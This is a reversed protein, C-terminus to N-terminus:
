ADHIGRQYPGVAFNLDTEHERALHGAFREIPDELAVNPLLSRTTHVAVEMNSACVLWAWFHMSLAISHWGRMCLKDGEEGDGERQEEEETVDRVGGFGM